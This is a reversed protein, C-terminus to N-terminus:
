YVIKHNVVEIQMYYYYLSLLLDSLKAPAMLHVETKPFTKIVRKVLHFAFTIM